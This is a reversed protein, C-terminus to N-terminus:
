FASAPQRCTKQWEEDVTNNVAFHIETNRCTNEEQRECTHKCNYKYKQTIKHTLTNNCTAALQGAGPCASPWQQRREHSFSAVRKFKAWFIPACRRWTPRNPNGLNAANARAVGARIAKQHIPLCLEAHSSLHRNTVTPSSPSRSRQHSHHLSQHSGPPPLPLGGTLVQLCESGHVLLQIRQSLWNNSNSVIVCM